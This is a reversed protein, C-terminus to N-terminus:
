NIYIVSSASIISVRNHLRTAVAPKEVRGAMGQKAKQFETGCARCAVDLYSERVYIALGADSEWGLGELKGGEGADSAWSLGDPGDKGCVVRQARRLRPNRRSPSSSFVRIPTLGRPALIPLSFYTCRPSLLLDLTSKAMIAQSCHIFDPLSLCCAYNM